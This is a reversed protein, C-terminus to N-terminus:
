DDTHVVVRRKGLLKTFPAALILTAPVIANRTAAQVDDIVPLVMVVFWSLGVVKMALRLYLWPDSRECRLLTACSQCHFVYILHWPNRPPLRAVDQLAGCVPCVVNRPLPLM